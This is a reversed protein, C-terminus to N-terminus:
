LGLYQCIEEPLLERECARRAVDLARPNRFILRAIVQGIGSPRIISPIEFPYHLINPPLSGLIDLQDLEAQSLARPASWSGVLTKEDEDGEIGLDAFEGLFVQSSYGPPVRIANPQGPHITAMGFLTILEVADGLDDGPPLTRLIITSEIRINTDHLRIDVPIDPTGQIILLSPALTCPQGGIGVRFYFSQMPTFDDPMIVPLDALADADVLSATTIWGATDLYAVRAWEEDESVADATLLAGAPITEIVESDIFGLGEPYTRLDAASSSTVAVGEDLLILADEPEVDNEVEVGGLLLYVAGPLAAPVNAQVHILSLGWEEEDLDFPGTRVAQVETLEARDGVESFFNSEVPQSFAAEVSEYGYCVSNPDTNACNTALQNIAYTVLGPCTDPTQAAVTPIMTFSFLLCMVLLFTKRSSM